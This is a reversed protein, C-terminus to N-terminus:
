LLKRQDVVKVNKVGDIQSLKDELEDTGGADDPIIQQVMLSSLGFAVPEEDISHPEVLSEIKKKMGELDVEDDEPMVQLTVAVEGMEDVERVLLGVIQVLTNTLSPEASAM